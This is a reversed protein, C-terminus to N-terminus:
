QSFGVIGFFQGTFPSPLVSVPKDNRLWRIAASPATLNVEFTRRYDRVFHPQRSMSSLPLAKAAQADGKLRKARTLL